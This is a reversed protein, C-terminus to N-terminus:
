YSDILLFYGDGEDDLVSMNGLRGPRMKNGILYTYVLTGPTLKTPSKKMFVSNLRSKM